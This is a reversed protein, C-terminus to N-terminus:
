PSGRWVGGKFYVRYPTTGNASGDLARWKGNTCLTGGQAPVADFEVANAYVAGGPDHATFNTACKDGTIVPNYGKIIIGGGGTSPFEAKLLPWSDFNDEARARPIAILAVIGAAFLATRVGVSLHM